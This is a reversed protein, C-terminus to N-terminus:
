PAIEVFHASCWNEAADVGADVAKLVNSGTALRRHGVAIADLLAPIPVERLTDILVRTVLEVRRERLARTKPSPFPLLTPM